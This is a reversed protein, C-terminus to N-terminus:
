PVGDIWVRSVNLDSDALVLNARYGRAIRGHEDAIGLFEAPYWSAMRVAEALDLGLTKVANRVASAM